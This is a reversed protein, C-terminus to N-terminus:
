KVKYIAFRVNCEMWREQMIPEVKARVEPSIKEDFFETGLDHACIISGSKLKPAFTEFERQKDGGDCILLVPSHKLGNSYLYCDPSFVDGKFLNVDLSVLFHVDCLSQKDFSHVSELNRKKAWLALYTTLAGCGTGIEIIKEIQPQTRFVEDLVFYLRYNHQMHQGVFTTHWQDTAPDTTPTPNM